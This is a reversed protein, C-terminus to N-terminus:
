KLWRIGLDKRFKHDKEENKGTVFVVIGVLLNIKELRIKEKKGCDKCFLSIAPKM